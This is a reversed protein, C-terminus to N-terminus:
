LTIEFTCAPAGLVRCTVQESHKVKRHLYAELFGAYFGRVYHCMPENPGHKGSIPNGETKALYTSGKMEVQKLERCRGWGREALVADMLNVLDNDSKVEDELHSLMSQGQDRGMQYIINAGLGEGLLGLLRDMLHLVTTTRFAVMKEGSVSEVILGTEADKDLTKLLVTKCGAIALSFQEGM